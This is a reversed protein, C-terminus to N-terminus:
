WIMSVVEEFFTGLDVKTRDFWDNGTGEGYKTAHTHGLHLSEDPPKPTVVSQNRSTQQACGTTAVVLAAGAFLTLFRKM